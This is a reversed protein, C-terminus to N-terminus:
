GHPGGSCERIDPLAEQFSGSIRSSTGVVGSCEHPGGSWKLVDPLTVRGSRSM